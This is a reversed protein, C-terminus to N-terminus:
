TLKSAAALAAAYVTKLPVSHALAQKQVSAFEPAVNWLQQTQPDRGLKVQVAGFETSVECLERDLMTRTVEHSRVGLSTSERLIQRTLTGALGPDCLVSLVTGPRGKKMQVPTLWVDRAGAQLLGQLLPEFLQPNMDDINAELVVCREGTAPAVAPASGAPEIGAIVRLLNPRDPLERTGAGYGLALVQMSPMAGYDSAFSALILAGTPTTLEFPPGGGDVQAGALLAATAPAPVPLLGHATRVMGSGIVVPRSVIRKPALWSLAAATGVIDVISDVAGVEHFSVEAVSVGHIAGEVEALRDFMRLARATIDPELGADLILARIQAYHVHPHGGHAAHLENSSQHQHLEPTAPKPAHLDHHSHHDHLGHPHPHPHSHLASAAKSKASEAQVRHFQATVTGAAAQSHPHSHTHSHDHPADEGGLVDVKTAMMVGRRVKHVQLSWDKLALRALPERVVSEPVGLDLLAGLTMDGAIGAYCDFYLTAGRLRQPDFGAM